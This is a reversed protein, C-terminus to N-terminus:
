KNTEVAMEKIIMIIGKVEILIEAVAAKDGPNCEAAKVLVQGLMDDVLKAVEPSMNYEPKGEALQQKLYKVTKAAVYLAKEEHSTEYKQPFEVTTKTSTVLVSSSTKCEAFNDVDGKHYAVFRLETKVVDDPKQATRQRDNEEIQRENPRIPFSSHINEVNRSFCFALKMILMMEM